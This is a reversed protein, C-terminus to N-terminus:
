LSSAAASFILTNPASKVILKEKSSSGSITACNNLDYYLMSFTENGKKSGTEICFSNKSMCNPSVCGEGDEDCMAVAIKLIEAVPAPSQQAADPLTSTPQPDNIQVGKQVTTPALINASSLSTVSQIFNVAAAVNNSPQAEGLQLNSNMISAMLGKVINTHRRAAKVPGKAEVQPSPLTKDM